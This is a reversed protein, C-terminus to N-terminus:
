NVTEQTESEAADVSNGRSGLLGEKVVDLARKVLREEDSDKLVVSSTAVVKTEGIVGFVGTVNGVGIYVTGLSEPREGSVGVRNIAIIGTGRDITNSTHEGEFKIM